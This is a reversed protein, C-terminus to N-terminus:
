RTKPRISFYHENNVIIQKGYLFPVLTGKAKLYEVIEELNNYQGKYGSIKIM